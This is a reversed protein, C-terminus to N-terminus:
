TVCVLRSTVKLTSEDLLCQGGGSVGDTVLVQYFLFVCCDRYSVMGIYPLEIRTPSSALLALFVVEDAQVDEAKVGHDKLYGAM